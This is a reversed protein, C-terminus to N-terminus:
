LAASAGARQMTGWAEPQRGEEWREQGLVWGRPRVGNRHALQGGQSKPEGLAQSPLRQTFNRERWIEGTNLCELPFHASVKALGLAHRSLIHKGLCEGEFTM